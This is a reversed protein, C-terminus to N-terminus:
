RMTSCEVVCGQVGLQNASGQDLGEIAINTWTRPPSILHRAPPGSPIGRIPKPCVSNTLTGNTCNVACYFSHIGWGGLTSPPDQTQQEPYGIALPSCSAPLLSRCGAVLFGLCSVWSGPLFGYGPAGLGLFLRAGGRRRRALSPVPGSFSSGLSLTSSEVQRNRIPQEVM